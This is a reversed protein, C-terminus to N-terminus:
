FILDYNSYKKIKVYEINEGLNLYDKEDEGTSKLYLFIILPTVNSKM